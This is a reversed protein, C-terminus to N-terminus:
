PGSGASATAKVASALVDGLIGMAEDVEAISVTLPPALRLVGAVPANVVLGNRLAAATIEAADLGPDLVSALLLGKGRVAAVGPLAELRAALYSGTRMALGPADISELEALTALAAACALPQGGFTSGHDGPVFAAAVERRAWCAGIPMGNGLSKAVTVIDPHVAEHQFAFWRGTRGLGTQVEDLILLIGREDCLRRVAALYGPPPVVVGAEGEMAELLIATVSDPDAAAELAGVDGYAVNRFGEPLPQFPAHKKPQGTAALTALTRGHFSGLASLVVFRTGGGVRRALKIACENAEAGSNAFFVQGGAPSGDGILRDLDAALRENLENGFLNSVHMLRAAQGGVAEAVRPNSHGVAVVAIGGLFDLYRRGEDDFLETGRGSVFRVPAPAYTPMLMPATPLSTM